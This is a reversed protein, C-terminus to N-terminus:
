FFFQLFLASVYNLDFCVLNLPRFSEVSLRKEIQFRSFNGYNRFDARIDLRLTKSRVQLPSKWFTKWSHYDKQFTRSKSVIPLFLSSVCDISALQWPTRSRQCGSHWSRISCLHSCHKNPLAMHATSCVSTVINGGLNGLASYIESIQPNSVVGAVGQQESGM